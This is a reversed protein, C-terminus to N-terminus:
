LSPNCIGQAAAPTRADEFKWDCGLQAQSKNKTGEQTLLSGGFYRLTLSQLDRASGRADKCSFPMAACYREKQMGEDKHGCATVPNRCVFFPL